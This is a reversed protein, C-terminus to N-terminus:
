PSVPHPDTIKGIERVIDFSVGPPLYVDLIGVMTREWYGGLQIVRNLIIKLEISEAVDRPILIRFQELNSRQIIGIYLFEGNEQETAEFVDDFSPLDDPETEGNISGFIPTGERLRFRGNGLVEVSVEEAFDAGPFILQM